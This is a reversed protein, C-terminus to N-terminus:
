DEYDWHVVIKEIEGSLKTKMM